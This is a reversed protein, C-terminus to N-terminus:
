QEKLKEIIKKRDLIIKVWYSVVADYGGSKQKEDETLVVISSVVKANEKKYQVINKFYESKTGMKSGSSGTVFAIKKGTFDFNGRQESLYTNLFEAEHKSIESSNDLGCSDLSQAGLFSYAVICILVLFIKM